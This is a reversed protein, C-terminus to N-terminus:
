VPSAASVNATLTVSESAVFTPRCRTKLRRPSVVSTPAVRVYVTPNLTCGAPGTVTVTSLPCVGWAGTVTSVSSEGCLKASTNM